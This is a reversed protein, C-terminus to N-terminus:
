IIELGLPADDWATRRKRYPTMVQRRLYWTFLSTEAIKRRCQGLVRMLFRGQTMNLQSTSGSSFQGKLLIRLSLLSLSDMVPQYSKNGLALLHPQHKSFFYSYLFQGIDPGQRHARFIPLYLFPPQALSQSSDSFSQFVWFHLLHKLHNM